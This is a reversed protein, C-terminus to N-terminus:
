NKQDNKQTSQKIVDLLSEKLQSLRLSSKMFIIFDDTYQELYFLYNFDLLIENNKWNHSNPEM